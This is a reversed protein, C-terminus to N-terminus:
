EGRVGTITYGAAVLQDIHYQGLWARCLTSGSSTISGVTVRWDIHVWDDPAAVINHLNIMPM